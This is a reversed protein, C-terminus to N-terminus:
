VQFIFREGNKIYMESTLDRSIWPVICAGMITSYLIVGFAINKSIPLQSEYEDLGVAQVIQQNITFRAM